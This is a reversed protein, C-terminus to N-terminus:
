FVWPVDDAKHLKAVPINEPLRAILSNYIEESYNYNSVIVLEPKINTIEEPNQVVCGEIINGWINSNTDFISIDFDIRPFAEHLLSLVQVTYGGGPYFAIKRKNAILERLRNLRDEKFFCSEAFRGYLDKLRYNAFAGHM